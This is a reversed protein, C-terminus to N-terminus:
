CTASIPRQAPDEGERSPVWLGDYHELTRTSRGKSRTLVYEARYAAWLQAVTM